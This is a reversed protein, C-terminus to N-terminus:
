RHFLRISNYVSTGSVSKGATRKTAQQEVQAAAQMGFLILSASLQLLRNLYSRVPLRPEISHAGDRAPPLAQPVQRAPLSSSAPGCPRPTKM